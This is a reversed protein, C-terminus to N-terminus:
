RANRSASAIALHSDMIVESVQDPAIGTSALLNRIVHAGLEAGPIKALTGNFSGVPLRGAAVIVVDTMNTSRSFARRMRRQGPAVNM